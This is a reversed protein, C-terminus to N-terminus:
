LEEENEEQATESSDADNNHMDGSEAMVVDNERRQRSMSRTLMQKLEHGEPLTKEGISKRSRPNPNPNPNNARYERKKEAREKARQRQLTRPDLYGEPRPKRERVSKPKAAERASYEQRKQDLAEARQSRAQVMEEHREQREEQTPVVLFQQPASQTPQPNGCKIMWGYDGTQARVWGENHWDGNALQALENKITQLGANLEEETNAHLYVIPISYQFHEPITTDLPFVTEGARQRRLAM